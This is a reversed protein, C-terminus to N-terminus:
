SLTSWASVGDAVYTAWLGTTLTTLSGASVITDGSAAAVTITGTGAIVTIRKGLPLPPVTWTSAVAAPVIKPLTVTFTGTSGFITDDSALAQYTATVTTFGEFASQVGPM